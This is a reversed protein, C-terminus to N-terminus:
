HPKNDVKKNPTKDQMVQIIDDVIKDLGSCNTRMKINWGWGGSSSSTALQHKGLAQPSVLCIVEMWILVQKQANFYYSRIYDHTVGGWMGVTCKLCSGRLFFDNLYLKIQHPKDLNNIFHIITLNTLHRLSPYCSLYLYKSAQCQPCTILPPM